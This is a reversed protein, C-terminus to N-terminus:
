LRQIMHFKLNPPSENEMVNMGLVGVVYIM